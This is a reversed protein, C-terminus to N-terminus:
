PHSQSTKAFQFAYLKTSRMVFRLRVPQGAVNHLDGKGKWTVPREIWNGGIEDCDVLTRGVLPTGAADLMEVKCTGMASCNVNLLLQDGSFKLLPTVFEGGEFGADASVFGDLRQKLRCLSGDFRAKAFSDHGIRYGGYYQYIENGNRVLGAAMYLNRADIEGEVGLPAYPERSVRQFDNGTRSVAMQIDLLGDNDYISRAARRSHRYASPFLLYVDAAFPYQVCAPNYHDSQPPDRDDYGFAVPAEGSPVPIKDKGWIYYPRDLQQFPWAQTIDDMELRGVKREPSWLRIYAVYKKVRPDYIAQNATDPALPFVRRNSMKWHIGDPSSHVYVGAKEPDPWHMVSVAKYRSETPAIPDLFVMTEIAGTIVINNAKSGEFEHLGLNPREWAIGDKSTAYCYRLGGEVSRAMYWMKCVDGDQVVSVCFGIDRSEWPKEPRLVSGMKVPPNMRLTIGTSTELFRRDILLQKQDGVDFATPSRPKAQEPLKEAGQLSVVLIGLLGATMLFIRIRM